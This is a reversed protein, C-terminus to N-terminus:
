EGRIRPSSGQMAPALGQDPPNEGYERPHDRRYLRARWRNRIRGTNAPIIGISTLGDRLDDFEGRIRPSSGAGQRNPQRSRMNEGYERPHDWSAAARASISRIRGTNAPIIRHPYFIVAHLECEGRIRPSSGLVGTRPHVHSGNEGYERPHDWLVLSPPYRRYIRGTNAPIIGLAHLILTRLRWEGRIRPSSGM